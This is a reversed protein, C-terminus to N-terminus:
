SSKVIIPKDKRLAAITARNLNLHAEILRAPTLAMWQNLSFDAFRPSRFLGLFLLPEDDLNQVYHAMEAPVYFEKGHCNMREWCQRDNPTRLLSRERSHVDTWGDSPMLRLRSPTDATKAGKPLQTCTAIRPFRTRSAMGNLTSTPGG